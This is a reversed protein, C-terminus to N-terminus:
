SEGITASMSVPTSGFWGSKMFGPASLASTAAVYNVEHRITVTAGPLPGRSDTVRVTLSGTQAAAMSISLALAAVALATRVLRM